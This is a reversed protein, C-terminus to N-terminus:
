FKVGYGPPNIRKPFGAETYDILGFKDALPFSMEIGFKKEKFICVDEVSNASELEALIEAEGTRNDRSDFEDVVLRHAIKKMLSVTAADEEETKYVKTKRKGKALEEADPMLNEHDSYAKRYPRCVDYFLRGATVELETLEVCPTTDIYPYDVDEEISILTYNEVSDILTVGPPLPIEKEFKIAYYRTM